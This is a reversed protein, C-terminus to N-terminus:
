RQERTTVAGSRRHATGPDGVVRSPQAHSWPSYTFGQPTNRAERAIRSPRAQDVLTIIRPAFLGVIVGGAAAVTSAALLVLRDPM